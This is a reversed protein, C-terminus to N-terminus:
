EREKSEQEKIKEVITRSTFTEWPYIACINTDGAHMGPLTDKLEAEGDSPTYCLYRHHEDMKMYYVTGIFHGLVHVMDTSEEDSVSLTVNDDVINADATGSPFAIVYGDHYWINQMKHVFTFWGLEELSVEHIKEMFAIEHQVSLRVKKDGHMKIKRETERERERETPVEEKKKKKNKKKNKNM